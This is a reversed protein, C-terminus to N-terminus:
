TFPETRKHLANYVKDPVTVPVEGAAMRDFLEVDMTAGPEPMPAWCDWPLAEVGDVAAVDRVLNGAIWWDGGAPIGSLGFREPDAGRVRVSRWAEGGTLFAGPPLDGLDFTIGFAPRQVEDIQADGLKWRGGDRYEVVWHDEFWGDTFYTGFGCRARAPGGHARLMAVALVSFGRCNTAVRGAPERAVALPRDDRALVEDLLAAAPRLHVTQKQADSLSVGYMEGLFEHIFLGQLVRAIGAFDGPLDRVAATHRGLDTFGSTM